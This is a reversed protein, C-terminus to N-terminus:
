PRNVWGRYAPRHRRQPWGASRLLFTALLFAGLPAVGVAALAAFTAAREALGVAGPPMAMVMRLALLPSLLALFALCARVRESPSVPRDSAKWRRCGLNWLVALGPLCAFLLADKARLTLFSVVAVAAVAIMLHSITVRAPRM